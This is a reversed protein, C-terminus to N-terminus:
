QKRNPNLGFSVNYNGEMMEQEVEIHIELHKKKRAYAKKVTDILGQGHTYQLVESDKVLLKTFLELEKHANYLEDQLEDITKETRQKQMM